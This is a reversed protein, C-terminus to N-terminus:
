LHGCQASRSTLEGNSLQISAGSENYLTCSFTCTTITESWFEENPVIEIIEFTSNTQDNLNTTWYTGNEDIYNIIVGDTADEESNYPSSGYAYSREEFMELIQSCETVCDVFNKLIIVEIGQSEFDLPNALLMSQEEACLNANNGGGAGAGNGILGGEEIIVLEGEIEGSFYFQSTINKPTGKNDEPKVQEEQSCSIVLLVYCMAVLSLYNFKM